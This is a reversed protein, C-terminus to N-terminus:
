YEPVTELLATYQSSQGLSGVRADYQDLSHLSDSSDVRLLRVFGEFDMDLEDACM